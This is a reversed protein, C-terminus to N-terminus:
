PPPRVCPGPRGSSEPGPLDEPRALLAGPLVHDRVLADVVHFPEDYLAARRPPQLLVVAVVQEQEGVVLLAVGFRAQRVELALRRFGQLGDARVVDEVQVDPIVVQPYPLLHWNDQNQEISRPSPGVPE